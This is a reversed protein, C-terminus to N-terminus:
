GQDDDAIAIFERWKYHLCELIFSALMGQHHHRDAHVLVRTYHQHCKTRGNQLPVPFPEGSAMLAYAVLLRCLRGNGDQFPHLTATRYMLESAALVGDGGGRISSNFAEVIVPVRDEIVDAEPYVYGTGPHAATTRYVGSSIATGDPATAGWMLLKHATRVMEPTLPQTGPKCDYCLFQLAKMHQHLQMRASTTAHGGDASWNSKPAASIDSPVVSPTVVPVSPTVPADFAEELLKYADQESVGTPLTGEMKNSLYVCAVASQKASGLLKIGIGSHSRSATVELQMGEVTNDVGWWPLPLYAARYALPPPSHPEPSVDM